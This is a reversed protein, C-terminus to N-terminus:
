KLIDGVPLMFRNLILPFFLGVGIIILALLVQVFILGFGVEKVDISGLAPKGFFVRRQMSLFYSLTLLSALLAVVAYGFMGSSWLAMIIILKSWFGSLPPIGATSLLAVVSTASTVPMKAALCGIKDMNVTGLRQELCAANTFLLSKFIAHNFFHFVAGILALKTGCGLALIIYGIQSISSYALMRKFNSQRLAAFAGVTISLIGIFMLINQLPITFGFVSVVMRILVYVGSVKTIIGALFVSVAAPAAQYADPLWGHFPVLGSKIFLACIFLAMAYKMLLSNQSGKLALSVAGFSTSGSCSIVLAISTLMLVSAIVSIIMYKFAAELALIDKQMAIGIFSSIAVLEIFVYLSFIDTTMVTANMGILAILLLNIFNFKEQREKFTNWGIIICIFFVIGITLLLILTLNDIVLGFSFLRAFISRGAQWLAQPQLIIWLLQFLALLIAMWFMALWFVNKKVIHRFPLNLLVLCYLPLLLLLYFM